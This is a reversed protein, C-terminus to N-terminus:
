LICGRMKELKKGGAGGADCNQERVFDVLDVLINDDMNDEERDGHVKGDYNKILEEIFIGGDKELMEDGMYPINHLITEDEVKSFFM